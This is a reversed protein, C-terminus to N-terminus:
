AAVATEDAESEVTQAPLRGRLIDLLLAGGYCVTLLGGIVTSAYLVGLNLGLAPTESGSNTRVLNLGTPVLLLGFAIIFLTVVLSFARQLAPSLRETLVHISFHAARTIGVAGGIFTLYVLSLTGVEETWTLARGVVYRFFVGLFMDILLLAMLLVIALRPILSVARLLSAM